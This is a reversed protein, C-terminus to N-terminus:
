RDELEELERELQAMEKAVTANIAAELAEIRRERAHGSRLLLLLLCLDCLLWLALVYFVTETM